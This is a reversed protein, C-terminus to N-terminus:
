LPSHGRDPMRKYNVHRGVFRFFMYAQKFPNSEGGAVRDACLKVEPHKVEVMPSPGAYKIYDLSRRNYEAIKDTNVETKLPKVEM